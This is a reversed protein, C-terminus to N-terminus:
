GWPCSGGISKHVYLSWIVVVFYVVNVIRLMTEFKLQLSLHQPSLFLYFYLVTLGSLIIGKFWLISYVSNTSHILHYMIPNIETKIGNISILKQTINFDAMNLIILTLLLIFGEYRMIADIQKM